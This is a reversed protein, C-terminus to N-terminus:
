RVHAEPLQAIFSAIMLVRENRNGSSTELLELAVRNSEQGLVRGTLRVAVVDGRAIADGLVIIDLPDGDGGAEPDELTGPVMGYNWPYSLYEIFRPRGDVTDQEIATGDATVEFKATTGAPIEIVANVTEDDNVAPVETVYNAGPAGCAFCFVAALVVFLRRM